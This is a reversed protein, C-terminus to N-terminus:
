CRAIMDASLWPSGIPPPTNTFLQEIGMGMGMMKRQRVMMAVVFVIIIAVYYLDVVLDFDSPRVIVVITAPIM